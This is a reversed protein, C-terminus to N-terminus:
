GYPPSDAILVMHGRAPQVALRSIHVKIQLEQRYFSSKAAPASLIPLSTMM